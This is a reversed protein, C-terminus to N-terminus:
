PVRLDGLDVTVSVPGVMVKARGKGDVESLYGARGSFLGSLITVRDGPRLALSKKAAAKEQTEELVTELRGYDNDPGWVLFHFCNAVSRFFPLLVDLLADSQLVAEGRDWRRAFSVDGPVEEVEASLRELVAEDVEASGESQEFSRDASWALVVPGPVQRAHGLFEERAWDLSLKEAVNTRDVRASLPLRMGARLGEEDVEIFLQAHQQHLAIQFLGVGTSLDTKDRKPLRRQDEPGRVFVAAVSKVKRGNAVSPADETSTLELGDMDDLAGLAEGIALLKDRTARRELTYVNSGWKKRAFADFDAASFGDFM